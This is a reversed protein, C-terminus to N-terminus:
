EAEPALSLGIGPFYKAIEARTTRTRTTGDYPNEIREVLGQEDFHYVHGARSGSYVVEVRNLGLPQLTVPQFNVRGGRIAELDFVMRCVAKEAGSAALFFVLAHLGEPIYNSPAITAAAKMPPGSQTMVRGDTLDTRTEFRGQPTSATGGYKGSTADASIWWGEEIIRNQAPLNVKRTGAYGGRVPMRTEHEWGVPRGAKDRILYWARCRPATFIASPVGPGPHLGSM